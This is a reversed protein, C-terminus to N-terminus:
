LSYSVQTMLLTLAVCSSIADTSPVSFEDIAENTGEMAKTKKRKLVKKASQFLRM